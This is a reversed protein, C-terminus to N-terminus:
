LNLPPDGAAPLAISITTGQGPTSEARIEGGHLTVIQRAIALGLGAGGSTRVRARDARWFRDFIHPLDDPAIGQGTDSVSLILSHQTKLKANQAATEGVSNQTKLKPLDENTAQPQELVASLSIAGGEPTHRLANSILNGLVQAIRQPDVLVPPLHPPAAVALAVGHAQAQQSFADAADQLLDAPCVQEPALTLQGSEALALLRLDDILRELLATEDLLRTVQEPTAQYVGDQMGELRGKIITLPTRLEHAIDATMQRRQQEAQALASSMDNFARALDDLERIRTSQVTVDRRGNALAQAAATMNRLPHSFSRAVVAAVLMLGGILGLLTLLFSRAVSGVVDLRRSVAGGGGPQVILTGVEREAAIVPVGPPHPGRESMRGPLDSDTSAILRGQEDLLVLGVPNLPSDYPPAELRRDVGKWSRGNALYYDSLARAYSAQSAQVSERFPAPQWIGAVALGFFGLAGCVGLVIVVGFALLLTWFLRPRM